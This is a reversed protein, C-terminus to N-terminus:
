AQCLFIKGFRSVEIRKSYEECLQDCRESLDNNEQLLSKGISASLTLNDEKEKLLATLRKMEENDEM